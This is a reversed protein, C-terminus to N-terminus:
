IKFTTYKNMMANEIIEDEKFILKINKIFKDSIKNTKISKKSLNSNSNLLENKNINNIKFIVILLSFFIIIIFIYIYFINIKLNHKKNNKSKKINNFIPIYNNNNINKKRIKFYEM